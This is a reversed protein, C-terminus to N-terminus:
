GGYATIVGAKISSLGQGPGQLGQETLARLDQAYSLVHIELSSERNTRSEGEEATDM